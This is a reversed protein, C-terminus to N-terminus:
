WSAYRSRTWAAILRFSFPSSMRTEAGSGVLPFTTSRISASWALRPPLPRFSDAAAPPRREADAARPAVRRRPEFFRRALQRRLRRPRNGLDGQARGSPARPRRPAARPERPLLLVPHVAGPHPREPGRPALRGGRGPLVRAPRPLARSLVARRRAGRQERLPRDPLGAGGVPAPSAVRGP